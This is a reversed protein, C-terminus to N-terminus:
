LVRIMICISNNIVCLFIKNLDSSKSGTGFYFDLTVGSNPKGSM